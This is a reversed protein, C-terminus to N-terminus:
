QLSQGNLWKKLFYTVKKAVVMKGSRLLDGKENVAYNVTLQEVVM